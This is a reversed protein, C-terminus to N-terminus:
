YLAAAIVRESAARKKEAHSDWWFFFGILPFLAFIGVLGGLITWGIFSNLIPNSSSYYVGGSSDVWKFVTVTKGKAHDGLLIVTDGNSDVGASTAEGGAVKVPGTMVTVSATGATDPNPSAVRSGVAGAFFGAIVTLICAALLLFDKKDDNM